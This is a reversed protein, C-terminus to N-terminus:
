LYSELKKNELFKKMEKASLVDHNDYGAKLIMQALIRSPHDGTNDYRNSKFNTVIFGLKLSNKNAFDMVSEVENVFRCDGICIKVQEDKLLHKEVQEKLKDIWINPMGLFQRVCETGLRELIERGTIKIGLDENVLESLKFKEYEHENRPKWGLLLWTTEMLATKFDVRKFNYTDELCKCTYDKGSGIPGITVLINYDEFSM